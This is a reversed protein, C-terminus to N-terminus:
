LPPLAIFQQIMLAWFHCVGSLFLLYICRKITTFFFIFDVTPTFFFLVVVDTRQVEVRRFEDVEEEEEEKKKSEPFTLLGHLSSPFCTVLCRGAGLCRGVIMPCRRRRRRQKMQWRRNKRRRKITVMIYLQNNDYFDGSPVCVMAPGKVNM